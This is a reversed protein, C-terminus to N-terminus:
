SHWGEADAAPWLTASAIVEAWGTLWVGSETWEVEQTGGPARVHVHRPAGGYAAAAVAAACAGTGSAETPGVGREWILIDITGGPKVEAFEVNTGVPFRKHVALAPGLARFRAESLSELLVCQPNGMDLTVVTEPRGAVDITERQLARPQGMASRFTYRAGAVDMLTLARDGAGTAITLHAGPALRRQRVLWAAVCRIGNGSLEAVSGDANQLRAEAGDPREVVWYVGDAGLGRHRDCAARVQDACAAPDPIAPGVHILFDNGLAHAKVVDLPAHRTM